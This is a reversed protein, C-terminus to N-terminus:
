KCVYSSTVTRWDGASVIEEVCNHCFRASVYTWGKRGTDQGFNKGLRITEGGTSTPYWSGCGLEQHQMEFRRNAGCKSREVASPLSSFNPHSGDM